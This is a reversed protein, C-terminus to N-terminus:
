FLRQTPQQEQAHEAYDKETPLWYVEHNERNSANREKVLSRFPLWDAGAQECVIVQGQRARSWKALEAYDISNVKYRKGASKYPPDIFWTAAGAESATNTYSDKIIRWHKIGLVQRATRARISQTWASGHNGQARRSAYTQSQTMWFGVLYKAGDPVKGLAAHLDFSKKHAEEDSFIPLGLIDAPSAAILYEWVACVVDSKDCLIVRKSPYRTSYGAAGAFPEVITDYQPKPYLPAMRGKSGFYSFFIGFNDM